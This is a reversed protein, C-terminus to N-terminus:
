RRESRREGLHMISNHSATALPTSTSGTVTSPEVHPPAAARGNGVISTSTGARTGISPWTYSGRAAAATAKPWAMPRSCERAYKSGNMSLSHLRRPGGICDAALPGGSPVAALGIQRRAPVIPLVGPAGDHACM